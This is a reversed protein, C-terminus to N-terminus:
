KSLQRSVGPLIRKVWAAYQIASPHLEDKAVYDPRKEAELSIDTINYWTIGRLQCIDKIRGNFLELDITIQEKNSNGFPTFGYNPISLVFIQSKSAAYKECTDLLSNFDREFDVIPLGQYQNNVGILLSVLDYGETLSDRKIARQLDDTRWANRAIIKVEISGVDAISTVLSDQLQYPFADDSKIATGITYSDGLALYSLKNDTSIDTMRNLNQKSCGVLTILASLILTFKM